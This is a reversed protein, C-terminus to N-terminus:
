APRLKKLRATADARFLHEPPAHDLFTAYAAAAKQSEGMAEWFRGLAYYGAPNPNAADLLQKALQEHRDGVIGTLAKRSLACVEDLLPQAEIFRRVAVYGWALDAKARPDDPTLRAALVLHRLGEQARGQLLLDFGESANTEGVNELGSSESAAEDPLLQQKSSPGGTSILSLKSQAVLAPLKRRPEVPASPLKTNLARKYFELAKGREGKNLYVDGLNNAVRAFEPSGPAVAAVIPLALDFLKLAEETHGREMQVEGLTSYVRALDLSAPAIRELAHRAKNSWALAEDPKHGHLQAVAIDNATSAWERSAPKSKRLDMARNLWKLAADADGRADAIRGLGQYAVACPEGGAAKPELLKLAGLYQKEAADLDFAAEQQRAIALLALGRSGPDAERKACDSAHDFFPKALDASVGRYLSLAVTSWWAAEDTPRALKEWVRPSRSDLDARVVEPYVEEPQMLKQDLLFQIWTFYAPAAEQWKGQLRRGEAKM